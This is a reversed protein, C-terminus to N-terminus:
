FEEAAEARRGTIGQNSLITLQKGDGKIELVAGREIGISDEEYKGILVMLLKLINSHTVILIDQNVNEKAIKHLAPLVREALDIDSESEPVVKHFLREYFGLRMRQSIEDMYISEFEAAQMGAAVGMKRDDFAEEIVVKGDITDSIVQATELCHSSRSSYIKSLMYSSFVQGLIRSEDFGLNTLNTDPESCVLGQKENITESHRIIYIHSM